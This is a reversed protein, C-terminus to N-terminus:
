LILLLKKECFWILESKKDFQNCKDILEKFLVCESFNILSKGLISVSLVSAFCCCRLLLVAKQMDCRFEQFGIEPLMDSYSFVNVTRMLTREVRKDVVRAFDSSEVSGGGFALGNRIIDNWSEEDGISLFLYMGTIADCNRSLKLVPGLPIESEWYLLLVM